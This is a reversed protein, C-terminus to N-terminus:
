QASNVLTSLRAEEQVGMNDAGQPMPLPAEEAEDEEWLLQIPPTVAGLGAM